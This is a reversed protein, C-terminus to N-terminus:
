PAAITRVAVVGFGISVTTLTTCWLRSAEAAINISIMPVIISTITTRTEELLLLLVEGAQIEGRSVAAKSIPDVTEKM